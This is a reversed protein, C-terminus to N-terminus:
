SERHKPYDEDDDSRRDRRLFAPLGVMGGFLPLLGYDPPRRAITEFALGALGSFFLIVDRTFPWNKVGGAV